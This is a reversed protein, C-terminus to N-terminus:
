IALLLSSLMAYDCRQFELSDGEGLRWLHLLDKPESDVLTLYVELYNSNSRFEWNKIKIQKNITNTIIWMM